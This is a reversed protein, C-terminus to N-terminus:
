KQGADLAQTAFQILQEKIILAIRDDVITGFIHGSLYVNLDGNSAKTLFDKIKVLSEYEADNM